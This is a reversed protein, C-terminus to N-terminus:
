ANPSKYKITGDISIIAIVDSINAIMSSHIADRKEIKEKAKIINWKSEKETKIKHKHYQRISYILILITVPFLIAGIFTIVEYLM